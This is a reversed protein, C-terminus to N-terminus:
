KIDTDSDDIKSGTINIKVNKIEISLKNWNLSFIDKDTLINKGRCLDIYDNYSLKASVVGSAKKIIENKNIDEYCYLKPKVFVGNRFHCELKMKGLDSSVLEDPLPYRLILSDTNSAIALNGPINKLPNISFRAYASIIASIQVASPIGRTKSFNFEIGETNVNLETYEKYLKRLKENLRPGMKILVLDDSIESVYNYHYKSTILEAEKKSLLKINYEKDRIGFRGYTSNLTLKAVSREVLDTTTRKIDYLTNVFEGFLENDDCADPFNVGCIIEAKYGYEIGQRLDVTSIYEYFTERPCSISGNENRRQIFLNKLKEETPPTIKAFVFGLKYYELNTNNSFVPNGTPMSFTMAYPYQSNMDYHYGEKIFKDEGQVFIDSNGGFYAQRIFKELPGKIMKISHKNDKYWYGFINLSLGPLTTFKTINFNYKNFYNFSLKNVVELLGMIDKDLYSLCEVKLDFNEPLNNYEIKITDNIKYDDVYFKLHPKNGKYFLTNNKVFKHPFMGKNITCNYSKLLSDLSAPVMKISDLLKVYLKRKKDIIKICLIDNDKWRPLLGYGAKSLAKIIFVSDFRGLNHAFLTYGNRNKKQTDIHDFLDDFLKKIIDDGTNLESTDNIYYLKKYGTNLACGGAYVVMEGLGPVDSNIGYTELDITGINNDQKHHVYGMIM